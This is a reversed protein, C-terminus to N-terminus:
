QGKVSTRAAIAESLLSLAESRALTGLLRRERLNNVVPINRLESSLLTPLAEQLRQNPTLCPPVPRMVDQAIVARLEEGAGLHGKLDQLAVVGVLRQGADVVPLFNNPSVLFRSAIEPLTATEPLPAVPERLLDGVTQQTAAGLQDSEFAAALGKRRLPETYVSAPHLRRGVLTAVACGLM